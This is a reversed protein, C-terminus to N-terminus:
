QEKVFDALWSRMSEAAKRALKHDSGSATVGAVLSGERAVGPFYFDSKSKDGAHNVPIKRERCLVTIQDNLGDDNTAVVALWIGDLDAAEFRRHSWVIKGTRELNYMAEAGDPAVVLVRAGFEALVAARRSAIVGAGVVLIKRESIDVFLPFYGEM